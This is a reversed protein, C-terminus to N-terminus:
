LPAPHLSATNPNRAARPAIALPQCQMTEAQAAILDIQRSDACLPENLVPEPRLRCGWKRAVGEHQNLQSPVRRPAARAHDAEHEIAHLRRAHGILHDGLRLLLSRL